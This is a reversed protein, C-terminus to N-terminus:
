LQGTSPLALIDEAWGVIQPLAPPLAVTSGLDYGKAQYEALTWKEKACPVHVSANPAFFENGFTFDVTANLDKPDCNGYKYLAVDGRYLLCRNFQYVEQWGSSDRTAGDNNACTDVHIGPGDGEVPQADPYVYLNNSSTKSHGLFNKAGGYFM